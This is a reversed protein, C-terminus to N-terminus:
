WYILYGMSDYVDYVEDIDAEYTYGTPCSYSDETVFTNTNEDYCWLFYGDSGNYQKIAPSPTGVSGCQHWYSGLWKPDSLNSKLYNFTATDSYVGIGYTNGYQVTMRNIVGNFYSTVNNLYTNYTSSSPDECLDVAFYIVSNIPQVAKEALYVAQTCDNQGQAYTFYDITAQNEFVTWIKLGASHITDAETKTLVTNYDGSPPTCGGIESSNLSACYNYYRGVARVNKQNYLANLFTRNASQYPDSYDCAAFSM